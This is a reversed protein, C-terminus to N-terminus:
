WVNVRTGGSNVNNDFRRYFDDREKRGQATPSFLPCGLSKTGSHPGIWTRNQGNPATVNGPSNGPTTYVPRGKKILNGNSPRPILDYEGPGLLGNPGYPDNPKGNNAPETLDYEVTTNDSHDTCSMKTSTNNPDRIQDCMMFLGLPDVWSLPNGGVYGYTNLGGSLGIPDSQM